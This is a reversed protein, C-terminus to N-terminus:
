SVLENASASVAPQCADGIMSRCGARARKTCFFPCAEFLESLLNLEDKEASGNKTDKTGTRTMQNNKKRMKPSFYDLVWM